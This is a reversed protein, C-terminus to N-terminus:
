LNAASIFFQDIQETTMGMLSLLSNSRYYNAAAFDIEALVRQEATWSGNEVQEDFIAAIATPVDATKTMALAEASSIMNLTLLQLACQRRTISEPVRPPPPPPEQMVWETLMYGSYGTNLVPAHVHDGNPLRLPNPISHAQGWVGGWSAVVEETNLNILKYGVMMTTM